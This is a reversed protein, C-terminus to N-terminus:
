QEYWLLFDKIKYARDWLTYLLPTSSWELCYLAKISWRNTIKSCWEDVIADTITDFLNDLHNEENTTLNDQHASVITISIRAEKTAFGRMTNTEPTHWIISVWWYTQNDSTPEASYFNIGLWISNIVEYIATTRLTTIM